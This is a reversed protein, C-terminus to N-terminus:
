RRTRGTVNGRPGYFTTTGGSTTSSTGLSNGRSDYYRTQGGSDTSSTGLSNGRSDYYRTQQAQAASLSLAMIAISIITKMYNGKQTSRFHLSLPVM